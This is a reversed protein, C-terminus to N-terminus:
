KYRLRQSSNILVSKAQENPIGPFHLVGYFFRWHLVHGRKNVQRFLTGSIARDLIQGNIRAILSSLRLLMLLHFVQQLLLSGGKYFLKACIKGVFVLDLHSREVISVLPNLPVVLKVM